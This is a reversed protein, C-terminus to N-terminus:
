EGSEMMTVNSLTWSAGVCQFFLFNCTTVRYVAGLQRAIRDVAEVVGEDRLSTLSTRM